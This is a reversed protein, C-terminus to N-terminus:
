TCGPGAWSTPHTSHLILPCAGGRGKGASVPSFGLSRNPWSALSDRRSGGAICPQPQCGYLPWRLFFLDRNSCVLCAPIIKQLVPLHFCFSIRLSSQANGVESSAICGWLTALGTLWKDSIFHACRGLIWSQLTPTRQPGAWAPQLEVGTSM